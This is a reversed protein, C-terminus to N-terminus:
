LPQNRLHITKTITLRRYGAPYGPDGPVIPALDQDLPQYVGTDQYGPEDAPTGVLLWLRVAGIRAGVVAPDDPDVYREVSGDRNADLGFQVQLNEVGPIVEEDRLVGNRALSLQRLSPRAPDFSSRDSVYYANVVVDNIVEDPGPGTGDDVLLSGGLTSLAQIQGVEPTVQEGSVHRVVLVDSGERPAGGFAPCPLDYVDDSAGATETLRGLAWDTADAGGNACTVTLTAPVTVLAPEAHRGWFGALRIDPELTDLAFRASEQLRALSDGARYSNRSQSYIYLAGGILFLGITMAVLLEVLTMGAQAPGPRGAAAPLLARM